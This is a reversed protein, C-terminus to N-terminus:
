YENPFLKKWNNQIYMFERVNQFSFSLRRDTYFLKHKSFSREVESSSSPISLVQVAIKGIIPFVGENLEFFRVPDEKFLREQKQKPTEYALNDRQPRREREHRKARVFLDYEERFEVKDVLHGFNSKVVGYSCISTSEPDFFAAVDLTKDLVGSQVFHKDWRKTLNDLVTNKCHQIFDRKLKVLGSNAESVKLSRYLAKLHQPLDNDIEKFNQQIGLWIKKVLHITSFSTTQFLMISEFIPKALKAAVRLMSLLPYLGHSEVIDLFKSVTAKEQENAGYKVAWTHILELTTIKGNKVVYEELLALMTRYTTGWTRTSSKVPPITFLLGMKNMTDVLDYRMASNKKALLANVSEFLEKFPMFATLLDCLILDLLHSSCPIRMCKLGHKNIFSTIGSRMYNTNDTPLSVIKNYDIKYKDCLNTLVREVMQANMSSDLKLTYLLYPIRDVIAEVNIIQQKKDQSEDLTLHIYCGQMRDVLTKFTAVYLPTSMVAVGKPDFPIHGSESILESQFEKNKCYTSLPMNSHVCFLFARAKIRDGSKKFLKNIINIRSSTTRKGLLRKHRKGNIHNTFHQKTSVKFRKKCGRCYMCGEDVWVCITDHHFKYAYSSLKEQNLSRYTEDM